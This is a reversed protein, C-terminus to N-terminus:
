RPWIWRRDWLHCRSTRAQPRMRVICQTCVVVDGELNDGKSKMDLLEAAVSLAVLAGDGDSVFGIQEPRAGLGGLRGLVGMTPADMGKSKGKTGPVRICISLDTTSGKKGTITTVTVDEAGLKKMYDAVLAGSTDARDLLDYVDMIQRMLM